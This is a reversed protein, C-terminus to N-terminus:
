IQLDVFTGPQGTKLAFENQIEHLSDDIKQLLEETSSLSSLYEVDEDVGDEVKKIEVKFPKESDGPSFTLNVKGEGHASLPGNKPSELSKLKEKIRDGDKLKESALSSHGGVLTNFLDRLGAKEVTLSNSKPIVITHVLKNDKNYVRLKIAGDKGMMGSRDVEITYSDARKMSSQARQRLATTASPAREVDWQPPRARPQVTDIVNKGERRKDPSGGKEREFGIRGILQGIVSRIQGLKTYLIGGDDGNAPTKRAKGEGEATEQFKRKAPDYFPPAVRQVREQNVDNILQYM